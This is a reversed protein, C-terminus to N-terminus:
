KFNKNLWEICNEKNEEIHTNYDQICDIIDEKKIFNKTDEIILNLKVEGHGIRSYGGIVSGSNKWKNLATFLAGIELKSVNDLVFGHLFMSGPILCQGNYIMLNTKEDKQEKLIQEADKNKQIDSRTYQYNKIFEESSKLDTEIKYDTPLLSNIINKNEECILIGRKVILSGAIIQNKLSGGLLRYLPFYEKLEAINKMNETISSESLSGGYLMYNAQDITLKGLLGLKEILDFSGSERVLKHRLANGSLVPISKISNNHLVKEKNIISENGATEMMHTIPSLAETICHIKVTGIDKM